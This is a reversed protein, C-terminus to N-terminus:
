EGDYDKQMKEPAVTFNYRCFSDFPCKKCDIEASVKNCLDDDEEVSKGGDYDVPYFKGEKVLKTFKKSYRRLASLTDSYFIQPHDYPMKPEEASKGDQIKENYKDLKKQYESDADKDLAFRKSVEGAKDKIAYFCAYDLFYDENEGASKKAEANVLRAYIPMQFDGLRGDSSVRIDKAQPIASVTNKFDIIAYRGDRELLCDFRGTYNWDFYDGTGSVGACDSVKPLYEEVKVPTWGGFKEDKCFSRLFIMITRVFKEKQSRFSKQVLPIQMFDFEQCSFAEDVCLSVCESIKAEEPFFGSEASIPLCRKDAQYKKLFLELIKHNLNGMDFPGILETQLKEEKVALVNKLLWKRPCPFFNKMDSQTINIKEDASEPSRRNTVLVQRIKESIKRSLLPKKKDFFGNKAASWIKFEESMSETVQFKGEDKEAENGYVEENETFFTAAIRKNFDREDLDSWPNKEASSLLGSHAIAFGSFSDEAYSYFVRESNEAYSNIYAQTCDNLSDEDTLKFDSRKKESLFALRKNPSDLNSQSSDLVFQYKFPACASLKYKYVQLSNKNKNQLAYIKSDIESLFFEYPNKIVLNFKPCYERQTESLEQLIVVCRSIVLDVEKTFIPNENLFDSKFVKWGEIIGAFDPSSCIEVLDKRLRRYYSLEEDDGAHGLAEEWIDIKKGNEEYNCICRLRSGELILNKRVAEEDAKWPLSTDTLVSRVTEFSFDSDYCNKFLHFIRGGFYKSLAKGSKITVPICYRSCEREIYPRYIDIQPVVLAIDSLDINEEISLQRIKLLIRRLETRSDPFKLCDYKKDFDIGTALLFVDPRNELYERYDAFDQILNCGFLLFKKGQPVFEKDAWLPDYLLNKALFDRYRSYLSGYDCDEDDDLYGSHEEKFAQFKKQWFDLSPLLSSIWNTFQSSNKAYEKQILSKLFVRESNEAILTSAYFKRVLPPVPALREGSGRSKFYETKFSDWTSFREMDVAKVGSKEPNRVCWEAWCNKATETNFVFICDPEKLLRLFDQNLTM